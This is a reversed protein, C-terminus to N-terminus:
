YNNNRHIHQLSLIPYKGIHKLASITAFAGNLTSDYHIKYNLATKRIEHTEKNKKNDISTNIIYIYKKNKIGDQINPRGEHIKNVLKIPIGQNKIKLYTGLTAELNFKLKKLKIAIDIILNKDQNKVSLLVTGHNKLNASVGLMAKYFALSFSKGIGMVEGTSRMEPGLFPNSEPFKNFPLVVEKVSFYKPKIIKIYKQQLLNKGCIARMAIKALPAGISKSVFPISRSARPNVELIFIKKNKIAFQINILGLVHLNLALIKTQNIIEKEIKKNLTHVPLTCASDGSHIGAPEIHEMIGGIFVNKKDCVADVDVEIANDLYQDLLITQNKSQQNRNSFYKILHDNDYIIKMDRGGLVYSPRAIIPYGINNSKKLAEKINNATDNKPQQLKLKHIIKQFKQRNEAIDIYKPQTGLINIKEQQFYKALKLPTQGGYQIVIGMPKEIRVIELIEELAIPEFYLRDSIDYDTSVTEPNCNIMITEYKDKKLIQSAHVCCYDFEIGQGIRNPGSGLIIIKKLNKTPLSECEDEWTSYMYATETSFEAACTDIRKYTPHLKLKYRKKRIDDEQVNILQSIRLDSFGKSKLYKLQAYNFDSLKKNKTKEEILILNQIQQLFWKDIYTLKYIKDITWKLRFAEGIYWLRKPGTEKLEYKIKKEQIINNDDIKKTNIDFGTSGIELSRIAKQLSEQFTRGIAMVEGISKMQTTLRDNCKHFKKFDFRPIKTVVYDISPEFAAPTNHGTINNQLENLTYGISLKTSIRAIPFGTAKSALASSRSVRPNMEIVIMKGTRPHIAFQVNSGGNTVGIEKLIMIAANRMNQYERDSLTQAPAITISDGTHIGMPDLNEITCIVIFNNLKDRIVELEYEKWGILSEDILLESIPSLELGKICINQFEEYNYAIGGGSGGMTFSPRIISPFGISKIITNAEKINHAIGCRATQLNIKNMSKEFLSRNEAKQISKITAGILEVNYKKLIGTQYLQLACNLATQGGMTPLIADPKEKKIIEEIIKVNIPEIYTKDAIDPDTMITAPNSNILIVTYGEEKLATCAQVGSYDFECAQGIIIPGSGIILISNIDNRKPM